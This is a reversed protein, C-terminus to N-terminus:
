RQNMEAKLVEDVIDGSRIAIAALLIEDNSLYGHAIREVYLIIASSLAQSATRPVASPMNPVASHLVGYRQYYLEESDTVRIGEVCGGQDIAIDIIVSGPQMKKIVSEKLVVPARRGSQLVAGIILDADVCIEEIREATSLYILINPYQQKLSALKNEDLDFVHVNARLAVAVAVAHSGAVGAGLVVVHGVETGGLTGGLSGLLIGRGGRNKFLLSAGRMVSVRGAIASMPSLLPLKHQADTVSEFPIATLGLECLQKVLLPYAALHLYSFVSHHARLYQLDYDLPQKVKVILEASLYLAEASETIVAGAIRYEDDGYGSAEGAMTQVFVSHGANILKKCADPILAIRYEGTMCEKPLGIKMVTYYVYFSLKQRIM